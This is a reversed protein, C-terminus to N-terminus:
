RVVTIDGKRQVKIQRGCWEVEATLWWIYVATAAMNQKRISERPDWGNDSDTSRAVLNGWRDFVEMKYSLVQIGPMFM